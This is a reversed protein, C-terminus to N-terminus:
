SHVCGASLREAPLKIQAGCLHIFANRHRRADWESTPECNVLSGQQQAWPLVHHPLGFQEQGWDPNSVPEGLDRGCNSGQPSHTHTQM